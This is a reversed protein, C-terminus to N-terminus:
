KCVYLRNFSNILWEIVLYVKMNADHKIQFSVDGIQRVTM